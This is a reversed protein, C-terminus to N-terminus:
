WSFSELTAVNGHEQNLEECTCPSRNSFNAKHVFHFIIIETVRVNKKAEQLQAYNFSISRATNSGVEQRHKNVSEIKIKKKAKTRV